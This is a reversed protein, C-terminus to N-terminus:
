FFTLFFKLVVEGQMQAMEKQFFFFLLLLLFFFLFFFLFQLLCKIIKDLQKRLTSLSFSSDCNAPVLIFLNYLTFQLYYM